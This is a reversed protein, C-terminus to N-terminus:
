GRTVQVQAIQNAKTLLEEKTLQLEPTVKISQGETLTEALLRYTFALERCISNPCSKVAECLLEQRNMKRGDLLEFKENLGVMPALYVYGLFRDTQSQALSFAKQLLEKRRTVSPITSASALLVYAEFCDPALETAKTFIFEQSVMGGCGPILILEGKKITRGLNLYYSANNPNLEIAKIFLDRKTWWKSGGTFNVTNLINEGLENYLKDDSPNTKIKEKLEKITCKGATRQITAISRAM